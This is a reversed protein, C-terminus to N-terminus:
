REAALMFATRGLQSKKNWDIDKGETNEFFIQVIETYGEACATMLGTWVDSTWQPPRFESGDDYDLGFNIQFENAGNLHHINRLLFRVLQPNNKSVVKQLPDTKLMILTDFHVQMFYVLNKLEEIDQKKDFKSFLKTWQPPLYNLTIRVKKTKKRKEVLRTFYYFYEDILVQFAKSVLRCNRVSKDDLKELIEVVVHKFPSKQDILSDLTAM